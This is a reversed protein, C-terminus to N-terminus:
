PHALNQTATLANGEQWCVIESKNELSAFSLAWQGNPEAVTSYKRNGNSLTVYIKGSQFGSAIGSVTGVKKNVSQSKIECSPAALTVGAYLFILFLLHHTM